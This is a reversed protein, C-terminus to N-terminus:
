RKIFSVMKPVFVFRRFNRIPSFLLLGNNVFRKFSCRLLAGEKISEFTPVNEFYKTERLSLYATDATIGICM